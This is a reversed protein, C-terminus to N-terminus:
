GIIDYKCIVCCCYSTHIPYVPYLLTTNQNVMGGVGRPLPPPPPATSAVGVCVCVRRFDRRMRVGYRLCPFVFLWWFMYKGAIHHLVSPVWWSPCCCAGPWTQDHLTCCLLKPDNRLCSLPSLSLSSLGTAYVAASGSASLSLWCSPACRRTPNLHLAPHPASYDRRPITPGERCCHARDTAAKKHRSRACVVDPQRDGTGAQASAAVAPQAPAPAPPPPQVLGRRRNILDGRCCCGTKLQQQQENAM